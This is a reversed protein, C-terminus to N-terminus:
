GNFPVYPTGYGQDRQFRFTFDYGPWTQSGDSEFTLRLYVFWGLDEFEEVIYGPSYIFNGELLFSDVVDFYEDLKEVRLRDYGMETQFTEGLDHFKTQPYLTPGYYSPTTTQSTYGLKINYNM